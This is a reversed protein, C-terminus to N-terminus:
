FYLDRCFLQNWEEIVFEAFLIEEEERKEAGGGSKSSVLFLLINKVSIRSLQNRLMLIGREISSHMARFMFLLKKINEIQTMLGSPEIL